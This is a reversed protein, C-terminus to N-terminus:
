KRYKKLLEQLIEGHHLEQNIFVEVQDAAEEAGMKRLCDALPSIGKKASCEVKAAQEMMKFLDEPLGGNLVTYFGAHNSEQDAMRELTDAVEQPLQQERALRAMAYYQKTGNAEAQALAAIKKEMESGKTLGYIKM